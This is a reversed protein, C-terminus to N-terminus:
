SFRAPSPHAELLPNSAAQSWNKDFFLSIGLASIMERGYSEM